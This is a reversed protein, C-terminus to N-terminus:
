HPRGLRVAWLAYWPMSASNFFKGKKILQETKSKARSASRIAKRRSPLPSVAALLSQETRRVHRSRKLHSGWEALRRRATCRCTERCRLLDISLQGAACHMLNCAVYM